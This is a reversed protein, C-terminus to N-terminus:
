ILLRIGKNLAFIKHSLDSCKMFVKTQRIFRVLLSLRTAELYARFLFVRIYQHYYRYM